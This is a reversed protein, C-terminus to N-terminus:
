FDFLELLQNESVPIDKPIESVKTLGISVVRLTLLVTQRGQNLLSVGCM